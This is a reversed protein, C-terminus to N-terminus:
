REDRRTLPKGQSLTKGSTFFFRAGSPIGPSERVEFNGYFRREVGVGEIAEGRGEADERGILGRYFHRISLIRPKGM